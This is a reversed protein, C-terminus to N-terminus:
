NAVILYLVDNNLTAPLSQRTYIRLYRTTSSSDNASGSYDDYGLTCNIGQLSGGSTQRLVVPNPSVILGSNNLNFDGNIYLGGITTLAQNTVVNNDFWAVKSVRIQKYEGSHDENIYISPNAENDFYVNLQNTGLNISKTTGSGLFTINNNFSTTGNVQTNGSINLAGNINSTTANINFESLSNFNLKTTTNTYPTFIANENSCSFTLGTGNANNPDILGTARIAGINNLTSSGNGIYLMKNTTDYIPNGAPVVLNKINNYTGRAVRIRGLSNSAM